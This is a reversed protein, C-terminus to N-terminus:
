WRDRDKGRRGGPRGSGTMNQAPGFNTWSGDPHQAWVEGDPSIRVDDKAGAGAAKKIQKHDGSWPTQDIPRSGAPPRQANENHLINGIANGIARGARRNADIFDRTWQDNEPTGPRFIGGPNPLPAAPIAPAHQALQVAPAATNGDSANQRAASLPGQAGGPFGDRIRNTSNLGAADGTSSAPSMGKLPNDHSEPAGKMGPALPTPASASGDNGNILAKMLEPQKIAAAIDAEPVGKMRLARATLNPYPGSAAAGPLPAAPAPGRARALADSTAPGDPDRRDYDAVRQGNITQNRPNVFAPHERGSGDKILKFQAQDTFVEPLMTKAAEPNLIALMAKSAASEPKEGNAILAQRIAQYQVDLNPGSAPVDQPAAAAPLNVGGLGFPTSGGYSAADIGALPPAPNMAGPAAGPVPLGHSPDQHMAALWAATQRRKEADEDAEPASPPYQWSAPLGGLLGGGRGASLLADLLSAM